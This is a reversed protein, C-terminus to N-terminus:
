QRNMHGFDTPGTVKTNNGGRSRTAPAAKLTSEEDQDVFAKRTDIDFHGLLSAMADPNSLAISVDKLMSTTDKAPRGKNSKPSELNEVDDGCESPCYSTNVSSGPEEGAWAYLARKWSKVQGDWNRRSFNLYKNPTRPLAKGRNCKPVEACYRKYISKEKAKDIEKTRRELTKQDYCWGKPPEVWEERPQPSMTHSAEGFLRRSTTGSKNASDRTLAGKNDQPTSQVSSKPSPSYRGFKNPIIKRPSSRIGSPPDVRSRHSRRNSSRSEVTALSDGSVHRKRSPISEPNPPRCEVTEVKVKVKELRKIRDSRRSTLAEAMAVSRVFKPKPM